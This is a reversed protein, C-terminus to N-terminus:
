AHPAVAADQDGRRPAGLALGHHDASRGRPRPSGTLARLEETRVGTLLSLVIYANMPTGVAATLMAQAQDLTLSEHRVKRSARHTIM